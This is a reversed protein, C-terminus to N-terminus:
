AYIFTVELKSPDFTTVGDHLKYEEGLEVPVSACGFGRGFTRFDEGWPYVPEGGDYVFKVTGKFPIPTEIVVWPYAAGPANLAGLWCRECNDYVYYGNEDLVPDGHEDRHWDSMNAARQAVTNWLDEKYPATAGGDCWEYYLKLGGDEYSADWTDKNWIYDWVGPKEHEDKAVNGGIQVNLEIKAEEAPTLVRAEEVAEKSPMEGHEKYYSVSFKKAKEHEAFMKQFQLSKGM